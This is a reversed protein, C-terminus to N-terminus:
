AEDIDAILYHLNRRRTRQQWEHCFVAEYADYGPVFRWFADRSKNQGFNVPGYPVQELIDIDNKQTVALYHAPVLTSRKVACNDYDEIKGGLNAKVPENGMSKNLIINRQHMLLLAKYVQRQMWMESPEIDNEEESTLIAEDLIDPTLTRLTGSNGARHGAWLGSTSLSAFTSTLTGDDIIDLLGYVDRNFDGKRFLYWEDATAALGASLNGTFTSNPHDVTSVVIEAVKGWTTKSYVDLTMGEHIRWARKYRRNQDATTIDMTFTQVATGAPNGAYASSNLSGRCGTKNGTATSGNFARGELDRYHAKNMDDVLFAIGAAFSREKASTRDAAKGSVYIRDYIRVTDWIPEQFAPQSIDPLAENDVGGSNRIGISQNRGTQISGMLDQGLDAPTKRRSKFYPAQDQLQSITDKDDFRRKVINNAVTMDFGAM